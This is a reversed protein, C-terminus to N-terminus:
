GPREDAETSWARLADAVSSFVSSPAEERPARAEIPPEAEIPSAPEIPSEPEIPPEPVPVRAPTTSSGVFQRMVEIELRLQAAESAMRDRDRSMVAVHSALERCQDELRRRAQDERSTRAQAEAELNTIRQELVSVARAHAGDREAVVRANAADREAVLRAHAADKEVLMRVHAADQEGRARAADEVATATRVEADQRAQELRVRVAEHEVARAELDSMLQEAHLAATRAQAHALRERDLDLHLSEVADRLESVIRGSERRVDLCAQKMAAEAEDGAASALALVLAPLSTSQRPDDLARELADLRADFTSRMLTVHRTAPVALADEIADPSWTQARNLDPANM